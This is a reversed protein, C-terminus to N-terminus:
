PSRLPPLVATVPVSRDRHGTAADDRILWIFADEFTPEAISLRHIRVNSLPAALVTDADNGRPLPVHLSRGRLSTGPFRRSVEAFARQWPQADVVAIQLGTSARLESPSGSAIVRGDLMLALRDCHEAESMVHTTVIVTTGTRSVRGILDWFDRRGTPDVGSTPEDLFLLHPGHLVAAAFAARQRVGTPLTSVVRVVDSEALGVLDCVAHQRETSVHGYLDGYFSLNERVSLSQYLSFSQSMYGIHPRIADSSTAVDMGLVRVSGEHIKLIGCLIRILTTKGAGNPGILGFVEGPTIDLDVHDLALRRGFRRSLGRTSVAPTTALAAAPSMAASM